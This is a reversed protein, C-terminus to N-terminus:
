KWKEMMKIASDIEKPRIYILRLKMLFEVADKHDIDSHKVLYAIFKPTTLCRMRNKKAVIRIQRDDSVLLTNKKGEFAIALLKRDVPSLQRLKNNPISIISKKNQQSVKEISIIIEIDLGIELAVEDLVSQLTSLKLDEIFNFDAKASNILFTANVLYQM